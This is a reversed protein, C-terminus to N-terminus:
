WAIPLLIGWPLPVRLLSYFIYHIVLAAVIGAPVVAIPNVKFAALMGGVVIAATIHFGLWQSAAIYFLLSALVAVARFWGLPERAWDALVLMPAGRGQRHDLVARGILVIGCIAMGGGIISPFLGPGVPMGALIPFTQAYLAVASGFLLVIVGIVADNAKM